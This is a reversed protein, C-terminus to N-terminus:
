AFRELLSDIGDNVENPAVSPMWHSCHTITELHFDGLYSGLTRFLTPGLFLDQDARLVLVPLQLKAGPHLVPPVPPLQIAARYYNLMAALAGPQSANVRCMSVVEPSITPVRRGTPPLLQIAAGVLYSTNFGLLMEPIRPRLRLTMLPSGRGVRKHPRSVGLGGSRM